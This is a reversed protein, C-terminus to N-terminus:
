EKEKNRIEKEEELRKKLLAMDEPLESDLYLERGTAPHVFGLTKAHLAQRPMMELLERAFALDHQNRGGLQTGRGDYTQDGFVPHGISRMHVRIQHTRGTELKLEIYSILPFIELTQYYTVAKKGSETVAMIKRDRVSRGVPSDIRGSRKKPSGWIFAHYRRLATKKSFQEALRALIIENKAVVLLGSTDKDIRHVIGPRDINDFVNMEDTHGLLANVLTGSYNGAAPHVVMDPPKNIVLLYEDEYCIDLPIAEPLIEPPDRKETKIKIIQNPHLIYGPKVTEDDVTVLGQKIAIQIQNRSLNPLQNALYIDLRERSQKKPITFTLSPDEM